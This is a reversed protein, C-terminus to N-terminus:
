PNPVMYQAVLAALQRARAQALLHPGDIPVVEGRPALRGPEAARAEVVLRDRTAVVATLPRPLALAESRADLAALSALRAAITERPTAAIAARVDGVLSADADAGLMAARLAIAPPVPARRALAAVVRLMPRPPTVFSAVFVVRVVLEPDRSAMRLALPGGFSEGVVLTARNPRPMAELL